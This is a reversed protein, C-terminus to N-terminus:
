KQSKSLYCQRFKSFLQIQLNNNKIKQFFPNIVKNFADFIEQPPIIIQMKETDGKSIFPQAAGRREIKWFSLGLYVYYSFPENLQKVVLTNKIATFDELPLYTRGCYEGIASIVATGFDYEKHEMRGDCGAASVGLYKGNEVYSRKTISTNGWDVKAIESLQGMRWGVPIQGLDADVMKGGSKKYPKYKNDPFNFDIFWQYFLDRALKELIESNNFDIKDWSYDPYFSELNKIIENNLENGIKTQEILFQNMTRLNDEFSIGDSDKDIAAIYRDPTLIFDHKSLLENTITKCFGKEDVYKGDKKRWEHYTNTIKSIDDESFDRHTRDTMHGLRSADILLIEGTRKRDGNGARKRSIFWICASIGTNYFLQKPLAVICDVLDNEILSKRIEGENNSQSTLSTNALVCAM